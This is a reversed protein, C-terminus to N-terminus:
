EPTDCVKTGEAALYGDVCATGTPCKQGKGCVLLCYHGLGAIHYGAPCKVM